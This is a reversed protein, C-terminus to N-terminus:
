DVSNKDPYDRNKEEEGTPFKGLIKGADMGTKTFNDTADEVYDTASKIFQHYPDPNKEKIMLETSVAIASMAISRINRLYDTADQVAIAMSQAVSQYAKGAGEVKVVRPSVHVNNVSSIARQVKDMNSM